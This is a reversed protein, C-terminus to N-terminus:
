QQLTLVADLFCVVSVAARLALLKLILILVLKTGSAVSAAAIAAVITARSEAIQAILIGTSRTITRGDIHAFSAVSKSTGLALRGRHALLAVLIQSAEIATRFYREKAGSALVAEAM